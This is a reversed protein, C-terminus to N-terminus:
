EGRWGWRQVPERHVDFGNRPLPYEVQILHGWERNDAVGELRTPLEQQEGTEGVGAFTGGISRDYAATGGFGTSSPPNILYEPPEALGGGVAPMARLCPATWTMSWDVLVPERDQLFDTVRFVDRVRPEGVALWGNPDTAGDVARIRVRDAGEPVERGNLPIDRWQAFDPEPQEVVHDTPYEPPPVARLRATDDVDRSGLEGGPGAFELVLRNGDGTRGAAALAIEQQASMEPLRYWGTTLEGTGAPGAAASGRVPGSGEPPPQDGFGADPEFGTGAPPTEAVLPTGEPEPTTVLHDTIGCEDGTLEGLNQGGVSYSDAQAIPAAVFGSVVLVVTLGVALVGVVAPLRVLARLARAGRGALAAVALVAGALLLWLLPSNLPSVPGEAWPLGYQSHLFWANKGSFVLAALGAAVCTALAASVAVARDAAFGAAAVSVLVVGATLAAAGVGALAGFYHTWKSPTLTMLGIGIASSLLPVHVLDMGPLRGAGRLLLVAGYVVVLGTLLVPARRAIDGQLDFGLLYEYRQFEQFWPVNPGYFTHLETAKRTGFLSQDAFLLVPASAAIAVLGAVVPPRLMPWIRPALVAFPAIATVGMPNVAVSLAAALVAAGLLWVRDRRVAQLAAALVATLGLAVFPEPRVGLGFPLWWALFAVAALARAGTSGSRGPLVAGLVGRSLLFWTAIAALVSPVRLALPSSDIAAVQEVIRQALTFPAESANEWRYYNGIDGTVLSNQITMGAFSDDPTNPGLVWWSGLLGVLLVDVLARLRGRNEAAPAAPAARVPEAPAARRAARRGRDHAVLLACALAVVLVQGGLLLEKAVSPANEFWNATTVKVQTGRAQEPALDTHFAVIDRLQVDPLAVEQDGIRATSGSNDGALTVDCGPAVPGRLVEQGGIAATVQGGTTTVAFGGGPADAVKSAVLTTPQGSQDGAQVASCPVDVRVDVPQYPVLFALTPEPDQGAQPWTVTVRDGLVPALPTAMAIASGLLALLVAAATLPRLRARRRRSRPAIVPEPDDLEAASPGLGEAM